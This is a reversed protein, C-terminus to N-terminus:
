LQRVVELLTALSGDWGDSLARVAELQQPCSVGCARARELWCDEFPSFEDGCGCAAGRAILEAHSQPAEYCSSDLLQGGAFRARGGWGQEEEYELVISAAPFRFSLAVVVQEPTSWATAFEFLAVGASRVLSVEQADWKTGWNRVNWNYWDGEEAPRPLIKQFSLPQGEADDVHSVLADLLTENAEVTLRNSVWNPM